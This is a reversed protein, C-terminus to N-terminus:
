CVVHAGQATRVVVMTEHHVGSNIGNGRICIEEPDGILERILLTRFVPLLLYDMVSAPSEAARDMLPFPTQRIALHSKLMIRILNVNGM